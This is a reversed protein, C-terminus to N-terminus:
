QKILKIISETDGNDTVTKLFYMGSKLEKLDIIYENIGTVFSVAIGEMMKAGLINYVDVQMRGEEKMDATLTLTESFPNPYVKVASPLKVSGNSKLAGQDVALKQYMPQTLVINGNTGGKLVSGTTIFSYSSINQAHLFTALSLMGLLVTITKKMLIKKAIPYFM